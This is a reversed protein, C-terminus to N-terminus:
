RRPNRRAKSMAVALVHGAYNGDTVPGGSGYYKRTRCPASPELLMFRSKHREIEVIAYLSSTGYPSLTLHLWLKFM